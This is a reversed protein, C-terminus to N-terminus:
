VPRGEIISVPSQTPIVGTVEFGASAFLARFEEETRELGGPIALMELDLLKGFHPENGAPIVMEVVLLRGDAAIARRCSRLIAAAEDDDWDHIIHKLLYADAGAPVAQFFDGSAAECRAPLNARAGAIVHPMDFLVGSLMPHRELITALLKGHGGAVDVLKRFRSFDYADAVAAGAQRSLDTMANNFIEAEGAHDKLYGFANEIGPKGTRVSETLPEWARWTMPMGIFRAMNRISDPADSRLPEAVATLAFQRPAIEVFVGVSALARLLRYVERERAGCAAALEAATRPGSALHDAIGLEAAASIARSVWKGALMQLLQASAPLERAGATGSM